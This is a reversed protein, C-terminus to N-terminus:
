RSPICRPFSTTTSSSRLSAAKSADSLEPFLVRQAEPEVTTSKFRPQAAIGLLLMGLGGLLFLGTRLMVPSLPGVAQEEDEHHFRRERGGHTAMGDTRGTTDM